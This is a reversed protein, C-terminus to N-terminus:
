SKFARDLSFMVDDMTMKESNHFTIDKRITFEVETSNENVKWASALAPVFKQNSWDFKILTDYTNAMFMWTILDKSKAPDMSTPEASTGMTFSDKSSVKESKATQGFCPVLGLVVGVGLMVAIVVSRSSKFIGRKKASLKIM